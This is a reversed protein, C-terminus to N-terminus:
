RRRRRCTMVSCPITIRRKSFFNTVKPYGVTCSLQQLPYTPSPTHHSSACAMLIASVEPLERQEGDNDKFLNQEQKWQGEYYKELVWTVFGHFFTAFSNSSTNRSCSGEVGRRGYLKTSFASSPCFQRRPFYNIDMIVNREKGRLLPCYFLFRSLCLFLSFIM